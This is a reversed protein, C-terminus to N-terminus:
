CAPRKQILTSIAASTTPAISLSVPLRFRAPRRPPSRRPRLYGSSRRDRAPGSRLSRPRMTSGTRRPGTDAPKCFNCLRIPIPPRRVRIATRGRRGLATRRPGRTDRGGPGDAACERAAEVGRLQTGRVSGGFGIVERARVPERAVGHPMVQIKQGLKLPKHRLPMIRSM